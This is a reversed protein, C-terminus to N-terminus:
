HELVVTQEEAGEASTAAAADEAESIRKHGHCRPCLLYGYGECGECPVFKPEYYRQDVQEDYYWSGGGDKVAEGACELCMVLGLGECVPCTRLSADEASPKLDPLLSAIAAKLADNRRQESAKRALEMRIREKEIRKEAIIHKQNDSYEYLEGAVNMKWEFGRDDKVLAYKEGTIEDSRFGGTVVPVSPDIEAGTAGCFFGYRDGDLFSVWGDVGPEGTTLSYPQVVYNNFTAKKGDWFIWRWDTQGVPIGDDFYGRFVCIATETYFYGVGDGEIFDSGNKNGSWRLGSFLWFRHAKGSEEDLGPYYLNARGGEQFADYAVTQDWGKSINGYIYSPFESVPLFHVRSITQAIDGFRHTTKVFYKPDLLYGEKEAVKKFDEYQYMTKGSNSATYYGDAKRGAAIGDLFLQKQALAPCINVLVALSILISKKM